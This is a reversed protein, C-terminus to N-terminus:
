DVGLARVLASIKEQTEEFEREPESDFVIGGGAQLYFNGDKHLMSRLTICTDVDGGPAVYGVVGAYFGRREEELQSIEYVAQIKPAGSVTGAPFTMALADIGSKDARLDGNVESVIHMVRAFYKVGFFHKVEVSEPICVRSIDNRALDVLMLHEAREKEDNILEDALALDEAIGSGRRRTGAIPTVIVKGRVSKVHSEPSSGILSHDGFNLYFLYPSPNHHRLLRYAELASLTSRVTVRRSPVAQFIYGDIIRERLKEVANCYRAKDQPNPVIENKGDEYGSSERLAIAKKVEDVLTALPKTSRGEDQLLAHEYHLAVLYLMEEVHDFVIFVRPLIFLAEPQKLSNKQEAFRFADCYQAYEFSLYGIGGAPFPIGLANSIDHQAHQDAFAKLIQLFTEKGEYHKEQAEGQQLAIVGDRQVLRAAEEVLVISYRSRGSDANVSELVGIANTSYLLTIPTCEDARVKLIYCSPTNLCVTENSVMTSEIIYAFFVMTLSKRLSAKGKHPLGGRWLVSSQAIRTYVVVIKSVSNKIFTEAALASARYALDESLQVKKRQHSYEM